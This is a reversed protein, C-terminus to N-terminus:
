EKGQTTKLKLHRPCLWVTKKMGFSCWPAFKCNWQEREKKTKPIILRPGWYLRILLRGVRCYVAQPEMSKRFWHWLSNECLSVGIPFLYYEHHERM